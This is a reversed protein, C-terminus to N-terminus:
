NGVSQYNFIQTKNNQKTTKKPKLPLSKRELNKAKSGKKTVSSSFIHFLLPVSFLFNFNMLCKEVYKM